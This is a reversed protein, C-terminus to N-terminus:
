KRMIVIKRYVVTATSVKKNEIKDTSVRGKVYQKISM